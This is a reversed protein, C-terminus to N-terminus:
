KTSQLEQAAITQSFSPLAQIKDIMQMTKRGIVIDVPFYQGWNAYVALLIDAASYREGQLYTASSLQNEVIQWLKNIEDAAAQFAAQRASTDAIHQAIFFLRSYAPHMTANAFMINEIATQRAQGQLPLMANEHKDLLYLIIAAGERLIVENDKLAPVAQVPNISAFDTMGSKDIIQVPQQLEHLIVQTAIACTGPAYYLTYM